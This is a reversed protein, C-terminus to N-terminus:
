TQLNNSIGGEYGFCAAFTGDEQAIAEFLPKAVSTLKVEDQLRHIEAFIEANETKADIRLLASVYQNEDMCM